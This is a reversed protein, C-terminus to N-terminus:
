REGRGMQVWCNRTHTGSVVSQMYGGEKFAGLAIIPLSSLCLQCFARGELCLVLDQLPLLTPVRPDAERKTQGNNGALQIHTARKPSDMLEGHKERCSCQKGM